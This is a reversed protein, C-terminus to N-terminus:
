ANEKILLPRLYKGGVFHGAFYPIMTLPLTILEFGIGLYMRMLVIFPVAIHVAIFWQFSFKKVTSRWLGLPLNLLFVFIILLLIM